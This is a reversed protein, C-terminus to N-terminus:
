AIGDKVMQKYITEDDGNYKKLCLDCDVCSREYCNKHIRVPYQKKFSEANEENGFVFREQNPGFSAYVIIPEGEYESLPKETWSDIGAQERVRSERKRKIEEDT